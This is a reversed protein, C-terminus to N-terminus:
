DEETVAMITKIGSEKILSMVKIVFGYDLGKDVNFHVPPKEKTSRKNLSLLDKKLNKIDTERNNVMIKKDKTVTVEITKSDKVVFEEGKVDPLAVKLASNKVFTSTVMFFILLLFLVDILSTINIYLPKREPLIDNEEFM